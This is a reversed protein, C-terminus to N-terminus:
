DAVNKYLIFQSKPNENMGKEAYVVEFDNNEQPYESLTRGKLYYEPHFGDAIDKFRKYFKPYYFDGFCRDSNQVVDVKINNDILEKWTDLISANIKIVFVRANDVSIIETSIHPKHPLVETKKGNNSQIIIVDNVNFHNILFKLETTSEDYLTNNRFSAPKFITLANDLLDIEINNNQLWKRIADM